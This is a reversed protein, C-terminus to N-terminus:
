KEFIKAELANDRLSEVSNSRTQQSFLTLLAGTLVIIVGIAYQLKMPEGLLTVGFILVFIPELVSLISTKESRIYNLSYLLLLIPVTTSVIAIGFLNIWVPLTRPITVSHTVLAFILCTFMCGLCVMLTTVQPPLTTIKKSSVIYGAYLFASTISLAIGIMDLKMEQTDIFFSMGVIIIVIAYYYITPIRQGYLFHNLLMVMAPYTFFIVMSLGSGIYPCAIFYLLTSLGYFLAGNIFAIGMEKKSVPAAKLQKTLILAMVLSAILFRWFLMNTVSISSRIVSIGFYGVFGYLFGSLIAYASGRHERSIM